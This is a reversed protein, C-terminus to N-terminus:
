NDFVELMEMSPHVITLGFLKVDEMTMINLIDKPTLKRWGATEVDRVEINLWNDMFIPKLSFLSDYLSENDYLFNEWFIFYKKNTRGRKRCYDRYEYWNLQELDSSVEIRYFGMVIDSAEKMDTVTMYNSMDSLKIIGNKAVKNLPTKDVPKMPLICKEFVPNTTLSVCSVEGYETMGKSTKIVEQTLIKNMNIGKTYHFIREEM